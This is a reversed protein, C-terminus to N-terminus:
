IGPSPPCPSSGPTPIVRIRSSAMNTRARRGTLEVDELYFVREAACAKTTTRTDGEFVVLNGKLRLRYDWTREQCWGIM